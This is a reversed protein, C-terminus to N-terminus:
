HPERVRARGAHLQRRDDDAPTKPDHALQLLSDELSHASPCGGVGIWVTGPSSFLAKLALVCHVPM